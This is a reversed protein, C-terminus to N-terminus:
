SQVLIHGYHDTYGGSCNSWGVLVASYCTDAHILAGVRALWGWSWVNLVRMYGGNEQIQAFGQYRLSWKHKIATVLLASVFTSIHFGQFTNCFTVFSQLKIRILLFPLHIFVMLFLKSSYRNHEAHMCQINIISVLSVHDLVYFNGTIFM